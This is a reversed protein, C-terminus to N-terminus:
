LLHESVNKIEDEWIRILKYGNEKAISNKLLDNKINRKQVNNLKSESLGKGHWYVGDIEVILNKKILLFDYIKGCLYFGYKYQINNKILFNEFEIEPKTKKYESFGFNDIAACKYTCYKSNKRSNIVFFQKSCSKCILCIKKPQDGKNKYRYSGNTKQIQSLRKKHKLTHHKGYFPNNPGSNVCQRCRKKHKVANVASKYSSYHQENGCSCSKYWVTKNNIFKTPIKEKNKTIDKIM